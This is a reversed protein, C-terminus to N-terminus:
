PPSSMRAVPRTERANVAVPWPPDIVIVDYVGALAKVEQTAVAELTAKAQEQRMQRHAAAPKMDGSRVKDALDPRHKKLTEVRKVVSPSTQTAQAKAQRTKHPGGRQKGALRPDIHGAVPKAEPLLTGQATRLRLATAQSRRTNGADKIRQQEDQWAASHAMCHEWILVRQEANLDRRAGNLSWVYAWPDGSLTKTQPVIQLHQCALARNRGDLIKGECLTIPERQGHRRIDEILEQLRTEDMLPFAEAAPHIDMRAHQTPICLPVYLKM